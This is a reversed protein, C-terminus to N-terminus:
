SAGELEQRLRHLASRIWSKITGLPENMAGAIESHTLGEFFALELARRQKEPLSGVLERVKQSRRRHDMWEEPNPPSLDSPLIERGEERQRQKESKGRMHDLARNRALTYLWPELPGRSAQYSGANRWLRLFVDQLLEEATTTEGTIRRLLSYVPRAYREYLEEMAEEQQRALQEMLATDTLRGDNGVTELAALFV